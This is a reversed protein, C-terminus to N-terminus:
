SSASPRRRGAADAVPAMPAAGYAVSRLTALQDLAAPSPTSTTSSRRRADHRGGLHLDGARGGVAACFTAPEFGDVLVVPRGHAHRHVVNYGAVHCLPFPFLYVDDPAVPRAATSAAVAALISAHTLM